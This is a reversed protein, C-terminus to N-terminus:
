GGAWGSACHFNYASAATDLADIVAECVTQGARVVHALLVGQNNSSTIPVEVHFEGAPLNFAQVQGRWDSTQLTAPATLLTSIFVSDPVPQGDSTSRNTVPADSACQASALQTRRVWCFGDAAIQPPAGQKFWDVYYRNLRAIGAHSPYFGRAANQLYAWYKNVDDIPSWYTDEDFDNWTFLVVVDPMQVTLISNWQVKLGFGGRYEFYRRGDSTQRSGWYSPTVGAFTGFGAAKVLAASSENHAVNGPPCGVSNCYGLGDVLGADLGTIQAGVAQPTNDLYQKGDPSTTFFGPAFYPNIGAARLPSLVLTQWSAKAQQWGGGEGGWTALVPRHVTVLPSSNDEVRWYNPHAAYATLMAAVEAFQMGTMDASFWLKFSGDPSVNQAAQFLAAANALYLGSWSGANLVFGDLHADVADRIDREYGTVSGGYSRNCVMYHAFVKKPLKIM